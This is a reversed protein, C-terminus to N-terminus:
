LGLLILMQLSSVRMLGSLAKSWQVLLQGSSKNPPGFLDM